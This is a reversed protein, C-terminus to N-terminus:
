TLRHKEMRKGNEMLICIYARYNFIEGIASAFARANTECMELGIARGIFTEDNEEDRELHRWYWVEYEAREEVYGCSYNSANKSCGWPASGCAALVVAFTSASLNRVMEHTM